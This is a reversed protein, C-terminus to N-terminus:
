KPILWFDNLGNEPSINKNSTSATTRVGSTTKITLQSDDGVIATIRYVTNRILSYKRTTQGNDTIYGKYTYSLGKIKVKIKLYPTINDDPASSSAAINQYSYFSTHADGSLELPPTTLINNSTINRLSNAKEVPIVMTKNQYGCNSNLVQNVLEVSEIKVEDSQTESKFMYIDLRAALREMSIDATVYQNDIIVEKRGIMLIDTDTFGTNSVTLAELQSMTLNSTIARSFSKNPDNYNAVTYIVKTQSSVNVSRSLEQMSEPVFVPILESYECYGTEKNFIYLALSSFSGDGDKVLPDDESGTRISLNLLADKDIRDLPLTDNNSCSALFFLVSWLLIKALNKYKYKM